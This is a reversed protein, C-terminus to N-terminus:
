KRTHRNKKLSCIYLRAPKPKRTCFAYYDLDQHPKQVIYTSVWREALTLYHWQSITFIIIIAWDVKLLYLHENALM